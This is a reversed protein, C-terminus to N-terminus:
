RERKYILGSLSLSLPPLASDLVCLLSARSEKRWEVGHEGGMCIKHMFILAGIQFLCFYSHLKFRFLMFLSTPVSWSRSEGLKPELALWSDSKFDAEYLPKSFSFLLNRYLASKAELPHRFVDHSSAFSVNADIWAMLMFPSKYERQLFM